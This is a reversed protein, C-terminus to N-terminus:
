KRSRKSQGIRPRGDRKKKFAEVSQNMQECAEALYAKELTLELHLDAVAAKARQLEGRLRRMESIEDPTEVRVVKGYRGFGYRRVWKMVTEHGRIGYKRMVETMCAEGKEVERVIQLKFARSYRIPQM